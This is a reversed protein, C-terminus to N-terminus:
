RRTKPKRTVIKFGALEVMRPFHRVSNQDKKRDAEKLNRYPVLCNQIRAADNRPEGYRWGNAQKFQMWLDHEEEGLVDLLAELTNKVQPDSRESRGRKPVIFLGALELIWPIRQAAAVNDAKIEAPLKDFPMDYKVKWGEEQALQRFTDHVAPALKEGLGQFDQARTMIQTFESVDHINMRLVEDPPLNSRRILSSKDRGLCLCIREFSRAGYTYRDVELLAALLGRDIQLRQDGAGLLARLLLARRVPFCIDAHDDVWELKGRGGQRTVRRTQRRNPGLVNLYGSIRSIFDPGKRLSFEKQAPADTTPPGFNQMDYSTAGAFVFVCKGVSHTIQGEQFKGDQIPALFYQLWKYEGSDFEDWFVIPTKGKLVEDRVQHFAGILDDSDSFQSLNFELMPVKEGLVAEAIQKIGFSKGAGPPGFVALALPKSAGKDAEYDTVLQKINRLAEIEDRDVTQLKGFKALPAQILARSGFIAVRKAIGYLPEANTAGTSSPQNELMRWRRRGAEWADVDPPVSVTVFTTDSGKPQCLSQVLDAYPIGPRGKGVQGHGLRRLARKAALGARMAQELEPEPLALQAAIAAALCSMYGFVEGKLKESEAWEGEMHQPDFVLTFRWSREGLREMWLCGESYLSVIVHRAQRLGALSPNSKLERVLDAATREWSIGRSIRAEQRRLDNVALLVVLRDALGDARMLEHWLGGQFLPWVTKLLVWKPAGSKRLWPYAPSNFRVGAAGDDVVVLEAADPPDTPVSSAAAAPDAFGLLRSLRWVKVSKKDPGIADQPEWLAHTATCPAAPRRGDGEPCIVNFAPGTSAQGPMEALLERVIWAGGKSTLLTTAPMDSMRPSLRTGAYVNHDLFFDGTVLISPTRNKRGSPSTKRTKM